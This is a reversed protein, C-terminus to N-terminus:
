EPSSLTSLGVPPQLSAAPATIRDGFERALQSVSKLKDGEWFTNQIRQGVNSLIPGLVTAEMKRPLGYDALLMFSMLALKIWEYLPIWHLFLDALPELALVACLCVAYALVSAGPALQDAPQSKGRRWTDARVKHLSLQGPRLSPSLVGHLRWAPLVYLLVARLVAAIPSHAEGNYQFPM